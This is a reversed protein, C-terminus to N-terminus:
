PPSAAPSAGCQIRAGIKAADIDVLCRPQCHELPTGDRANCYAACAQAVARKKTQAETEEGEKAAKGEFAGEQTAIKATCTPTPDAKEGRDCGGVLLIVAILRLGPAM